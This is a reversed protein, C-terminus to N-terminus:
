VGWIEAWRASSSLIKPCTLITTPFIEGQPFEETRQCGADTCALACVGKPCDQLTNRGQHIWLACPTGCFPSFAGTVRGYLGEVSAARPMVDSPSFTPIPHNPNLHSSDFGVEVAWETPLMLIDRFRETGRNVCRYFLFLLVQQM